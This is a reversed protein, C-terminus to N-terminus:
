SYTPERRLLKWLAIGLLILAVPATILGLTFISFVSFGLLLIATLALAMWRQKDKILIVNAVLLGLIFVIAGMLIQVLGIQNAFEGWGGWGIGFAALLM